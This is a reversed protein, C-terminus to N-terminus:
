YDLSSVPALKIVDKRARAFFPNGYEQQETISTNPAAHTTCIHHLAPIFFRLQSITLQSKRRQHGPCSEFKCSRM